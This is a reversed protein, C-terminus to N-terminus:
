IEPGTNLYEYPVDTMKIPISDLPMSDFVYEPVKFKLPRTFEYTQANYLV